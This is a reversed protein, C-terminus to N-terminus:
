TLFRVELANLLKVPLMHGQAGTITLCDGDKILGVAEEASLVKSKGM